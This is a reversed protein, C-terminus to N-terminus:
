FMKQYNKQKLKFTYKITQSLFQAAPLPWHEPVCGLNKLARLSVLMTNVEEAFYLCKNTKHKQGESDKVKIKVPIFGLMKLPSGDATSCRTQNRHLNTTKLGMKKMTHKGLVLITAGMDPCNSTDVTTRKSPATVLEKSVQVSNGFNELDVSHLTEIKMRLPNHNPSIQQTFRNRTNCWVIAKVQQPTNTAVKSLCISGVVEGEEEVSNAKQNPRDEM